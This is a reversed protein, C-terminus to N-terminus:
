FICDIKDSPKKEKDKGWVILRSRKSVSYKLEKNPQGEM